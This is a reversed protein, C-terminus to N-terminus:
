INSFRLCPSEIRPFCESKRGKNKKKDRKSMQTLHSVDDTLKQETKKKETSSNKRTTIQIEWFNRYKWIDLLVVSGDFDAVSMQRVSLCIDSETLEVSPTRM